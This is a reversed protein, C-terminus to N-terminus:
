SKFLCLLTITNGFSDLLRRGHVFGVWFVARPVLSIWFDSRHQSHRLRHMRHWLSCLWWIWLHSTSKGLQSRWRCLADCLSLSLSNSQYHHVAKRLAQYITKNNKWLDGSVNHQSRLFVLSLSFSSLNISSGLENFHIILSFLWSLEKELERWINIYINCAPRCSPFLLPPFSYNLSLSLSLSPKGDAVYLSLDMSNFGIHTVSKKRAPSGSYISTYVTFSLDGQMTLLVSPHISSNLITDSENEILLSFNPQFSVLLIIRM